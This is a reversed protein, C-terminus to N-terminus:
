SFHYVAAVGGPNRIIQVPNKYVRSLREEQLVLDPPGQLLEPRSYSPDGHAGAEASGPGLLVVEDAVQLAVTLDHLVMLIGQGRNALNKLVRMALVQHHIDLHAGPEDLILFRPDQIVARAIMVRQLEGGSLTDLTHDLLPQLEFQGIGFEWLESPCELANIGRRYPYRGMILADRVTTGPPPTHLQPVLAIYQARRRPSYSRIDEGGLFVAGAQPKILGSLLHIITSKGSGNPGLLVIIKGPEFRLNLNHILEQQPTYSFKLDRLELSNRTDGSM